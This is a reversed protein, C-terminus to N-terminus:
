KTLNTSFYRIYPRIAKLVSEAEDLHSPEISNAPHGLYTMVMPIVDSSSDLLSVGCDSFRALIAPNFVMEASDLPVNPMRELLMDRNYSFGTTGWMYPMGHRNEPDFRSFSKVLTPDLNARNKLREWKLESYIGAQMLRSSFAASHVVLDYGSKGAMMKADVIESTDYVDYNVDIGFENEFDEITTKGIYDAWNFINLVPEASAINITLLCSILLSLKFSSCYIAGSKNDRQCSFM